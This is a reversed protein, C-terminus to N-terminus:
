GFFEVVRVFYDLLPWTVFAAIQGLPRFVLGFASVVMGLYTLAPVAPVVLVNVLPSWLSYGGFRAFIVPFTALQAALTASLPEGLWSPLRWLPKSIRPAVFILGAAALFSLQFSVSWLIYPSVAMMLLASILLSWATFAPRKFSRGLFYVSGMIAARVVPPTAGTLLAYLWIGSLAFPAALIPSLLHSLGVFVGSVVTINFGSAVVIHTTGTKRLAEAFDAPLTTKIGLLIGALLAAHPEPLLSSLLGEVNQRFRFLRALLPNGLNRRLIKINPFAAVASVGWFIQSQRPVELQGAVSVFDGYNFDQHRRTTILLCGSLKRQNLEPRCVRLRQWRGEEEVESVVGTLERVTGRYAAPRAATLRVIWLALLLLVLGALKFYSTM